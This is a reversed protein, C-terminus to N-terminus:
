ENPNYGKSIKRESRKMRVNDNNGVKFTPRKGITYVCESNPIKKMICILIEASTLGFAQRPTAVTLM